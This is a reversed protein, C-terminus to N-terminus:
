APPSTKPAVDLIRAPPAGTTTPARVALALGTIPRTPPDVPAPTVYDPTDFTFAHFIRGSDAPRASRALRTRALAADLTPAHDAAALTPGGTVPQACPAAMGVGACLVSALLARLLAPMRPLM